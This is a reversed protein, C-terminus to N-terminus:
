MVFEVDCRARDRRAQVDARNSEWELMEECWDVYQEFTLKPPVSLFDRDVPLELDLELTKSKDNV